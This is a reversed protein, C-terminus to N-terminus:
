LAATIKPPAPIKIIFREEGKGTTTAIPNSDKAISILMKKNCLISTLHDDDEPGPHSTQACGKMELTLLVLDKFSLFLHTTEAAGHYVVSKGKVICSM